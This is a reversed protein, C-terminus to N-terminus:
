REDNNEGKKESEKITIPTEAESSKKKKEDIFGYVIVGVAMGIWPGWVDFGM